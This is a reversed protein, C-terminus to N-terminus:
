CCKHARHCNTCAKAALLCSGGGGSGGGPRVHPRGRGGAMSIEPLCGRACLKWNVTFVGLPLTHVAGRIAAAHPCPACSPEWVPAREADPMKKPGGPPLVTRKSHPAPAPVFPECADSVPM